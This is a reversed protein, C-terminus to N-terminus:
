LLKRFVLILADWQVPPSPLAWLRLLGRPIDPTPTDVRCCPTAVSREQPGSGLSELHLLAPPRQRECRFGLVLSMFWAKHGGIPPTMVRHLLHPTFGRAWSM